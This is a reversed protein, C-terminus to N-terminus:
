ILGQLRQFEQAVDEALTKAYIQTTKVSTHGLMKQLIHLPVGNALTVTTAFTHRAMHSSIKQTLGCAQGLAKLYVNYKQQSLIPLKYDYMKLVEIAPPLLYIFFETKTKHRQARLYRMGDREETNKYDFTALDAYALGTYCQFLFLDRIRQLIPDVLETEVIRQLEEKSLFRRGKSEGRSVKFSAYPDKNILGFAMAEHIYVRLRKHYNHITVQHTLNRKKRLWDDFKVVSTHTVDAFSVFLGSAEIAKLAACHQRKTGPTGSREKFREWAFDIFCRPRNLELRYAELLQDLTYAQGYREFASGSAQQLQEEIEDLTRNYERAHPTKYAMGIDASWQGACLRIGTDLYRRSKGRYLEFVVPAEKTKTAVNRRDFLRRIRLENMENWSICYLEKCGEIRACTKQPTRLVHAFLACFAWFNCTILVAGFWRFLCTVLQFVTAVM